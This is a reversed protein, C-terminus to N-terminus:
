AGNVFFISAFFDLSRSTDGLDDVAKETKICYWFTVSLRVSMEATAVGASAYSAISRRQYFCAM